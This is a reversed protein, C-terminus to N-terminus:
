LDGARRDARIWDNRDLRYVFTDYDDAGFRRREVFRFGLREYFRHARINDARPDLLVTAAGPDAFLRALAARMMRTGLGRGLADAEGIWIDVARLGPDRSGWYDFPDLAPTMIQLFGVARGAEEAILLERWDGPDALENPWDWGGEAPNGLPAQLHAARDWRQLLALDDPTAARLRLEAM